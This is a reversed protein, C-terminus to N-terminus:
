GVLGKTPEFHLGSRGKLIRVEGTDPDAVLLPRVPSQRDGYDGLQHVWYKGAKVSGPPAVYVVRELFGIVVYSKSGVKIVFRDSGHFIRSWREADKRGM